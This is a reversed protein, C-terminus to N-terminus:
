RQESRPRHTMARIEMGPAAYQEAEGPTAHVSHLEGSEIVAYYTPDPIVPTEVGALMQRIYEADQEVQVTAAAREATAILLRQAPTIM